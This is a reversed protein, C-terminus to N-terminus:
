VRMDERVQRKGNSGTEHALTPVEELFMDYLSILMQRSVDAEEEGM